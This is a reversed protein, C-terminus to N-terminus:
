TLPIDTLTRRRLLSDLQMGLREVLKVKEVYRIEFVDAESMRRQLYSDSTELTDM